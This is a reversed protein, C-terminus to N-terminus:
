VQFIRGGSAIGKVFHGFLLSIQTLSKQITQMAVLFSMVNGTSLKRMSLMYGGMGLTILVISNLFINTGAQLVIDFENM